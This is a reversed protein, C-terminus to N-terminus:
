VEEQHLFNEYLPDVVPELFVPLPDKRQFDMLEKSHRFFYDLAVDPPVPFPLLLLSTKM